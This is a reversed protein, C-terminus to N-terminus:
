SARFSLCLIVKSIAQVTKMSMNPLCLREVGRQLHCKKDRQCCKNKVKLIFPRVPSQCRTQVINPKYSLQCPSTMAFFRTIHAVANLANFSAVQWPRKIRHMYYKVVYLSDVTWVRHAVMMKQKSTESKRLSEWKGAIGLRV